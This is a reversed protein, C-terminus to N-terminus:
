GWWVKMSASERSLQHLQKCDYFGWNDCAFTPM